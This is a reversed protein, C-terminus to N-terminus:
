MDYELADPDTFDELVSKYHRDVCFKTVSVEFTRKRSNYVVRFLERNVYVNRIHCIVSIDLEGFFYHQHKLFRTISELDCMDSFLTISNFYEDDPTLPDLMLNLNDHLYMVVYTEIMPYLLYSRDQKAFRGYRRIYQDSKLVAPSNLEILTEQKNSLMKCEQLNQYLHRPIQRRVHQYLIFRCKIGIYVVCMALDYLKAVAM